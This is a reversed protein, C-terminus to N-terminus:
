ALRGFFKKNIVMIMIAVANFVALAILTSSVGLLPVVLSTILLAGGASGFLEIGYSNGAIVTNAQDKLKTALAFQTGTICAQMFIFLYLLYKLVLSYHIMYNIVLWFLMLFIALTIQLGIFHRYDAKVKKAIIYAGTFLGAMFLTFIIGLQAYVFGYLAQFAVIILMEVSSATFGGALLSINVPKLFILFLLLTVCVVILPVMLSVHYYSLWFQLGYYYTIPRFDHNVPADPYFKSLILDSKQKLLVDDLYYENVYLNDVGCQNIAAAINTTLPGDSAIFFLKNGPIITVNGFVTKLTNYISSNLQASSRNMYNEVGPLGLGVVANKNMHKKLLEFFEQTYYRNTQAYLPEPTNLLVVDFTNKTKGIFIGPDQFHQDIGATTVASFYKKELDCLEKNIDVFDIRSVPYKRIEKETHGINGSVQLVSKADPRQVMAYHVAEENAIENNGTNILSGNEYLNYQGSGKTVILKGFENEVSEVVSQGPFLKGLAINKIATNTLVGVLSLLIIVNIVLVWKKRSITLLAIMVFANIAAIMSIVQYGDFFRILVFSFLAGSIISGLSEVAYFKSIENKDGSSISVFVTFAAGSLLCVPFLVAAIVYFIELPGQMVGPQFLQNKYYTFALLLLATLLLPITLLLLSLFYNFKCKIFKILLAGSGTFLFWCSMVLGTLLENGSFVSFLERLVVLQIVVTNFGLLFINIRSGPIKEQM